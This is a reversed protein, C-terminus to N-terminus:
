FRLVENVSFYTEMNNQKQHPTKAYKVDQVVMPKEFCLVNSGEQARAMGADCIFKLHLCSELYLLVKEAYEKCLYTIGHGSLMNSIQFMQLGSIIYVDKTIQLHKRIGMQNWGGMGYRSMGLYIADTFVSCMIKTRFLDTFSVDDEFITFPYVDNQIAHHLAKIHAKTCGESKESSKVGALFQPELGYKQFERGMAKKRAEDNTIVFLPMETFDITQMFKEDDGVVEHINRRLKSDMFFRKERFSKLIEYAQQNHRYISFQLCAREGESFADKSFPYHKLVTELNEAMNQNKYTQLKHQIMFPESSEEEKWEDTEMFWIGEKSAPALKKKFEVWKPLTFWPLPFFVVSVYPNLYAAWWSFTSNAICLAKCNMLYFFDELISGNRYCVDFDNQFKESSFHQKSWPLDESVVTITEFCSKELIRKVSRYYYLPQLHHFVNGFKLYDGRRVHIGLVSKESMTLQTSQCIANRFLHIIETQYELFYREDNYYGRLLIYKHEFLPPIPSFQADDEQWVHPKVLSEKPFVRQFEPFQEWFLDKSHLEGSYKPDFIPLYGYKKCYAYLTAFQFLQNGLGGCIYIACKTENM